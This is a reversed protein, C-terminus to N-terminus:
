KFTMWQTSTSGITIQAEYEASKDHIITVTEDFVGTSSYRDYVFRFTLQKTAKNRVTLIIEEASLASFTQKVTFGGDIMRATMQGVFPWYSGTPNNGGSNWCGTLFSIAMIAILLLKKM